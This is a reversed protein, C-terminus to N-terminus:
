EVAIVPCIYYGHALLERVPQNTQNGPWIYNVSSVDTSRQAMEDSYKHPIHHVVLSEFPKFAELHSTLIRSGLVIFEKRMQEQTEASPLSNGVNYNLLDQIPKKNSLQFIPIRDRVAMHHIWHLSQNSKKLSQHHTRVFFDLNDFIISYTQPPPRVTLMMEKNTLDHFPLVAEGGEQMSGTEEHMSVTEEDGM